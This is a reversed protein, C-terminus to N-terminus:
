REWNDTTYHQYVDSILSLMDALVREDDTKNIVEEIQRRIEDKSM